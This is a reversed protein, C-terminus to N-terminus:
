REGVRPRGRRRRRGRVRRSSCRRRTAVRALARARRPPRLRAALSATSRADVTALLFILHDGGGTALTRGDKSYSAALVADNHPKFVQRSKWEGHGRYLVRVVGDAFGVLVTRAQPDIAVPAWALLTCAQAFTRSYLPKKDVYDWCRVTGDSGASAAFHDTPSVDLGVVQGSHFSALRTVAKSPLDLRWLGGNADHVLYHDGGGGAGRVMAKVCVGDGVLAEDSPALHFDLSHDAGERGRDGRLGGACAATRRGHRAATRAGLRRRPGRRTARCTPPTAAAARPRTPRACSARRSSTATGSCPAGNEHRPVKGDPLEAFDVVDTLEDPAPGNPARRPQRPQPPPRRRPSSPPLSLPTAATTTTTAPLALASPRPPLPPPARATLRRPRPPRAPLLLLLSSSSSSSPSSSSSSPPPPPPPVRARRLAERARVKGVGIDGQLKLGTFTQAMKWFRIHGTGSTCLRGERDASFEVQFVDQGFAKTHLM